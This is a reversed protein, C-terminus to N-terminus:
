GEVQHPPKAKVVDLYTRQDLLIEYDCKLKENRVFVSDDEYEGFRALSDFGVTDDINEVLEDDEDALVRDAYYTLSITEHDDIEGFEEPAIIYPKKAVAKKRVKKSKEGGAGHIDSYGCEGLKAALVNGPKASTSVVITRAEAVEKLANEKKAFVEKVSDIEEQVLQEYKKKTYYWTITSGVGVGFLFTALKGIKSM